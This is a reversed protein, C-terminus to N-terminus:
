VHQHQQQWRRVRRAGVSGGRSDAGGCSGSAGLSVLSLSILTMYQPRSIYLILPLYNQNTLSYIIKKKQSFSVRFPKTCIPNSKSIYSNLNIALMQFLTLYAITGYKFFYMCISSVFCLKWSQMLIDIPVIKKSLFINIFVYGTEKEWIKLWLSGLGPYNWVRPLLILISTRCHMRKTCCVARRHCILHLHCSYSKLLLISFVYFIWLCAFAFCIFFVPITM